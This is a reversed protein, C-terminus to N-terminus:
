DFSVAIVGGTGPVVVIGTACNWDLLLVTGPAATTPIALVQNSAAAAGTTSCDNVSGATSGAAIISVRAVRGPTAKVVAAATINYQQSNGGCQVPVRNTNSLAAGNISLAASVALRNTTSVALGAQELVVGKSISGDANTYLM